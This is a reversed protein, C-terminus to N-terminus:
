TTTEWDTIVYDDDKIPLSLPTFLSADTTSYNGTATTETETWSGQQTPASQSGEFRGYGLVTNFSSTNQSRGPFGNIRQTTGDRDFPYWHIMLTKFYTGGGGARGMKLFYEHGPHSASTSLEGTSGSGIPWETDIGASNYTNFAGGFYQTSSIRSGASNFIAHGNHQWNGVEDIDAIHGTSNSEIQYKLRYSVLNNVGKNGSDGGNSSWLKEITGNSAVKFRAIMHQDNKEADPGPPLNTADGMMHAAIGGDKHAAMRLGTMFAPFSSSQTEEFSYFHVDQQALNPNPEKLFGVGGVSRLQEKGSATQGSGFAFWLGNNVEDWIAETNKRFEMGFSARPDKPVVVELSSIYNLSHDLAYVKAKGTALAGADHFLFLHSDSAVPITHPATISKVLQGNSTNIAVLQGSHSISFFMSGDPSVTSTKVMATGSTGGETNGLGLGQFCKKWKVQRDPGIKILCKAVDHLVGVYTNGARDMTPVDFTFDPNGGQFSPYLSIWQGSSVASKGYYDSHAVEQGGPIGINPSQTTHNAAGGFEGVIDALTIKGSTPLTM